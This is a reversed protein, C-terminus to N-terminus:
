IQCNANDLPRWSVVSRSRSLSTTSGTTLLSSCRPHDRVAAFLDDMVRWVGREDDSGTSTRRLGLPRLNLSAGPLRTQRPPGGVSPQSLQWAPTRPRPNQRAARAQEADTQACIM